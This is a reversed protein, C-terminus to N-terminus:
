RCKVEDYAVVRGYSLREYDSIFRLPPSHIMITSCIYSCWSCENIAESSAATHLPLRCIGRERSCDAGSDVPCALEGHRVAACRWDARRLFYDIRQPDACGGSVGT